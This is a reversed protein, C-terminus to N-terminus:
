LVRVKEEKLGIIGRNEKLIVVHGATIEEGPLILPIGPPYQHIFDLATQGVAKDLDIWRGEENFSEYIEQKRIREIPQYIGKKWTGARKPISKMVELTLKLDKKSSNQSLVGLVFPGDTLEMNVGRKYLEDSLEEGSYGPFRFFIKMFDYAAVTKDQSGEYLDFGLERAEQRFNKVLTLFYEKQEKKLSAIKSIAGEISILFIYSPSTSTFLSIKGLLEERSVWHTNRHVLATQTMAALSKHASHVVLDAGSRLASYEELHSFILHAGHAEDVLVRVRYKHAIAVLVKLDLIVGYYSPNTLVLTKIGPNERLYKDLTDPGIGLLLGKEEDYVPDITRVKLSRLIAAQYVSKHCNRQLLIEQGPKALAFVCAYIAMTSGGVGYFTDLSGFVESARKQSEKIIEQPHLLNDTGYTETYDLAFVQEPDFGGEKGKHGPYHLRIYNKDRLKKLRKQLIPEM